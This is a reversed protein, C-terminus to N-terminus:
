PELLNPVRLASLQRNQKRFVMLHREGYILPTGQITTDSELTLGEKEFMARWKEPTMYTGPMPIDVDQWVVCYLLDSFLIRQREFEESANTHTHPCLEVIVASGGPILIRSMERVIEDPKAEHHLVYCSLAGAQSDSKIEPVRNNEIQYFPFDKSSRYDLVDGGSMALQPIARTLLGPFMGKGTGWDFCEVRVHPASRDAIQQFAPTVNEVLTTSRSRFTEWFRERYPAVLERARAIGNCPDKMAEIVRGSLLYCEARDPVFSELGIRLDGVLAQALRTDNAIHAAKAGLVPPQQAVNRM